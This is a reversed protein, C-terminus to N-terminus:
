FGCENINGFTCACIAKKRLGKNNKGCYKNYKGSTTWWDMLISMSTVPDDEGGKGDKDWPLTIAAETEVLKKQIM